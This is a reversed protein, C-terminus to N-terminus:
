RTGHLEAALVVPGTPAGSPSGGAPELSVLLQVDGDPLTGPPLAEGGSPLVGLSRPATAGAALTWLEFDRGPPVTMPRVPDLRVAPGLERVLFGGTGAGPPLLVAVVRPTPAPRPGLIIGGVSVGVM